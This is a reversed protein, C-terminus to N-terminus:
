CRSSLGHPCRFHRMSDEMFGDPRSDVRHCEFKLNHKKIFADLPTPKDPEPEEDDARYTEWEGSAIESFDADDLSDNDPTTGKPWVARCLEEIKTELDDVDKARRALERLENYLGEDNNLWLSVNWTARNSWGNYSM